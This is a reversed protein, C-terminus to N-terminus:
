PMCDDEHCGGAIYDLEEGAVFDVIRDAETRYDVVQRVSRKLVSVYDKLVCYNWGYLDRYRAYRGPGLRVSTAPSHYRNMVSLVASSAFDEVDEPEVHLKRKFFLGRCCRGAVALALSWLKAWSEEDGDELWRAQYTLLRENDSKPCPFRPLRRKPFLDLEPQDAERSRFGM